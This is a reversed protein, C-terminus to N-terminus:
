LRMMLTGIKQISADYMSLLREEVETINKLSVYLSRALSETNKKEHSYPSLITQFVKDELSSLWRQQLYLESLKSVMEYDIHVTAKTVIATEWATTLIDPMNIEPLVIAREKVAGAQATQIKLAELFTRQDRLATEVAKRNAAIEQRFNKLTALALQRNNRSEKWDNLSLALLISFVISLIQITLTVVSNRIDKYSHM